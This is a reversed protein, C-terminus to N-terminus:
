EDRPPRSYAVVGALLLPDRDPDAQREVGTVAADATHL